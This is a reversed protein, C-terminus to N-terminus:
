GAEELIAELEDAEREEWRARLEELYRGLALLALLLHRDRVKRVGRTFRRELRLVDIASTEILRRPAKKLRARGPGTCLGIYCLQTWKRHMAKTFFGAYYRHRKLKDLSWRGITAVPLGDPELSLGTASDEPSASSSSDTRSEPRAM